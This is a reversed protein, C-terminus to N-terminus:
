EQSRASQWVKWKAVNDVNDGINDEDTAYDDNNDDDKLIAYVNVSAFDYQKSHYSKVRTHFKLHYQSRRHEIKSAPLLSTVLQNQARVSFRKVKVGLSNM